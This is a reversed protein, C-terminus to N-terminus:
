KSAYHPIKQRMKATAKTYSLAWTESTPAPKSLLTDKQTCQHTIAKSKSRHQANDPQPWSNSYLTGLAATKNSKARHPIRQTTEPLVDRTPKTTADAQMKQQPKPKAGGKYSKPSRTRKPMEEGNPTNPHIHNPAQVTEFAPNAYESRPITVPKTNRKQPPPHLISIDDSANGPNASPYIHASRLLRKLNESQNRKKFSVKDQEARQTAHQHPQQACGNPKNIRTRSAQNTSIRQNSVRRNTNGSDQESQNGKELVSKTRNGANRRTTTRSNLAVTQNTIRTRQRSEYENKSPPADTITNSPNQSEM